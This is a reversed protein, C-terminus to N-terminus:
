RNLENTKSKLLYENISNEVNDKIYELIEHRPYKIINIDLDGVIDSVVKGYIPQDKFHLVPSQTSLTDNIRTIEIPNCGTDCVDLGYEDRRTLYMPDCIARVENIFNPDRISININSNALNLISPIELVNEIYQDYMNNLDVAPIRTDRDLNINNINEIKIYPGGELSEWSVYTNLQHLFMEFKLPNFEHSLELLSLDTASGGGLCFTRWIFSGRPLHSHSYESRYEMMSKTTRCGSLSHTIYYEGSYRKSIHIKVFLDLITHAIGISNRIEIKPYHIIIGVINSNTVDLEFCWLNDFLSNCSATIDSIIKDNKSSISLKDRDIKLEALTKTFRSIENNIEILLSQRTHIEFETNRIESNFDRQSMGYSSLEETIHSSEVISELVEPLDDLDVSTMDPLGPYTVSGDLAGVDVLEQNSDVHTTARAYAAVARDFDDEIEGM